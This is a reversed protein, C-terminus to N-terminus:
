RDLLGSVFQDGHFINSNSFEMEHEMCARYADREEIELSNAVNPDGSFRITFKKSARTVILNKFCEPVDAFEWLTIIKVIVPSYFLNTQSQINFLNGGKNVFLASSLGCSSLVSLYSPLYKIYHNNSDPILTATEITNFTWGLTQVERNVQNFILTANSIDSNGVERLESVPPQGIVSLMNNIATLRFDIANVGTNNNNNTNLKNDM